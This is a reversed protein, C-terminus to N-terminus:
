PLAYADAAVQVVLGDDVLWQLCRDRQEDVPWATEVTRRPVPVQSDRLLALLRGRCQRDTGEYRQTRRVGSHAPYGAARWSCLDHVPCTDCRPASAV